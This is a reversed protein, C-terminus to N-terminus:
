FRELIKHAVYLVLVVACAIFINVTFLTTRGLLVILLLLATLGAGIFFVKLRYKKTKGVHFANKTIMIVIVSAAAIIIGISIVSGVSISISFDMPNGTVANRILLITDSSIVINILGLISLCWCVTDFFDIFRQRLTEPPLSAIVNDCFGKYDEGIVERINKGRQQASLVMETLDHRVLEQHYASIKSVRLYCIMDTFAEKNEANIQQDLANNSRNLERTKRNM